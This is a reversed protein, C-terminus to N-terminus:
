FYIRLGAGGDLGTAIDPALQLLLAVEGYIELRSGRPRIGIEFPVRGAFGTDNDETVGYVAAGLGLRLPVVVSGSSVVALTYLYTLHGYSVRSARVSTAGLVIDLASRRKLDIKIDLGTPEGIFLGLGIADARATGALGLLVVGVIAIRM